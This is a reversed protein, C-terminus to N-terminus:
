MGSEAASPGKVVLSIVSSMHWLFPLISNFNLPCHVQLIRWSLGLKHTITTFFTCAICFYDFPLAPSRPLSLWMLLPASTSFCPCYILILSCVGRARRCSLAILCSFYTLSLEYFVTRGLGSWILAHTSYHGCTYHVDPPFSLAATTSWCRLTDPVGVPFSQYLAKFLIWSTHAEKQPYCPVSSSKINSYSITMPDLNSIKLVFRPM